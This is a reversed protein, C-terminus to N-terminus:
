NFKVGNPETTIVKSHPEGDFEYTDYLPKLPASMVVNDRHVIYFADPADNINPDTGVPLLFVNNYQDADNALVFDLNHVFSNMDNPNPRLNRGIFWSKLDQNQSNLSFLGTVKNYPIKAEYYRPAFGFVRSFAQANFSSTEAYSGNRDLFVEANAVAAPGLGDFEPTPFDLLFRNLVNRDIGQYYFVDPVFSNIILFVGDEDTDCEFKHSSSAIAKGGYSGLSAESTEATSMVDAVHLDFEDSGLYYCRKLKEASLLVGFQALARDLARSGALRHRSVYSTLAKLSSFAFQSPSSNLMNLFPTNGNGHYPSSSEQYNQVIDTDNLSVTGQRWLMPYDPITIDTQGVSSNVGVPSDFLSTFFDSSYAVFLMLALLNYIEEPTLYYSIQRQTIGDFWASLGYHAYASPWYWDMYVKAAALLNLASFSVVDPFDIFKYGLSELLSVAIRGLSTFVYPTTGIYIDYTSSSAGEMTLFSGYIGEHQFAKILDPSIFSPVSELIGTGDPQNHPVDNRFDEWPEWIVRYPVFFARNHIKVGGYFPKDLPATRVFTDHNVTLKTRKVVNRYYAPFFRMFGATTIHISPLSFKSLKPAAVPIKAKSISSTM